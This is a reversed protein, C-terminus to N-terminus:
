FEGTQRPQKLYRELQETEKGYGSAGLRANALRKGLEVAPQDLPNIGLLRGTLLTAIELLAILRGANHETEAALHLETLPTQRLTLAMKTGLTEAPLLEGFPRGRLYSWNDPLDNSFLPGPPRHASSLFLCGKDRPGDLFMQMLSHQDTVGVAPLPMSGVGEKGLSEAWLQAFWDGFWAWQPVYSLFIIQSYGKDMLARNWLALKWSEHRALVEPSLGPRALERGVALAGEGLAEWDLGLFVAPVLGVASLVSYRGGLHDPVPLSRVTFKEAEQRLFGKAADTVLVVHEKWREGLASKLWQQALFYQAITEITGGSKSVVTVLTKEPPLSAFWAELSPADVNDAIWLWPGAHRPRDQQPFFAKQLARAGLASGGIGLLLLHDFRNLHDKLGRLERVLESWYPMDIFPLEGAAVDRGLDAAMGDLASAFGTADGEGMRGTYADTWDIRNGRM